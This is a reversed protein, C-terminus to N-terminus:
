FCNLKNYVNAKILLDYMASSHIRDYKPFYGLDIKKIISPIGILLNFIDYHDNQYATQLAHNNHCSPDVRKDKLLLKIIDVHQEYCAWGIAHNENDSPDVRKDKLLLQVMETDGYQSAYGIAYNNYCSPNVSSKELLTKVLEVNSSHIAKKLEQKIFSM